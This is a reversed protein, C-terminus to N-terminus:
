TGAPRAARAVTKQYLDVYQQASHAWSWDQRMGTDILKRWGARDQLYLDCAQRLTESLALPSYELFSFGNAPATQARPTGYGVITDALGGTERVIPVTGYRLSYLQNLGCPEFRSPMLFVDSGAEIRRALPNSFELRVAVKDPHRQALSEFLRHYKPQGTGLIVWQTDSTQVWRQIVEAILDFGKQDTLRGVSSVLPVSPAVPLGLEKQL